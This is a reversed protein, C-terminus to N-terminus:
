WFKIIQNLLNNKILSITKRPLRVDSHSGQAISAPTFLWKWNQKHRRFNWIRLKIRMKLRENWIWKTSWISVILFLQYSSNWKLHNFNFTSFKGINMSVLLLWALLSWCRCFLLKQRTKAQIINMYRFCRRRSWLKIM